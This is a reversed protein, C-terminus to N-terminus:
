ELMEAKSLESQTPKKGAKVQEADSLDTETASEDTSAPQAMRRGYDGQHYFQPPYYQNAYMYPYYMYSPHQQQQSM